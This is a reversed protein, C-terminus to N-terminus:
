RASATASPDAIQKLATAAALRVEDKPDTLLKTLAAQADPRGIAGLALAAMTRQRPEGSRTADRAIGFGTDDGLLGLARAAALQLEPYQQNDKAFALKGIILEKVSPDRPRALALTCVIQEDPYPSVTGATLNERGVDDKLAWLAEAAALRVADSSDGLMPRVVWVGTPEGLMGLVTAVSARVDANRSQSFKELDKSMSYDGLRHLAYRAAVQVNSNDDGAARGLARYAGQLKLEGACLAAAYRVIWERDALGKMVADAARPDRTRSMAEFAQARTVPSASMAAKAIIEDAKQQADADIPTDVLKPAIPMRPREFDKQVKSGGGCGVLSVGLTAAVLSVRVTNMM